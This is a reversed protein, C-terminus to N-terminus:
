PVQMYWRPIQVPLPAPFLPSVARTWSSCTSVGWQRSQMLQWRKEQTANWTNQRMSENNNTRDTDYSEHIVQEGHNAEMEGAISCKRQADGLVRQTFPIQLFSDHYM